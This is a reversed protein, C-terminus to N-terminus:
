AQQGRAAGGRRPEAAERRVALGATVFGCVIALTKLSCCADITEAVSRSHHLVPQQMM